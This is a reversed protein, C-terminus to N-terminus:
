RMADCVVFTLVHLARLPARLCDLLIDAHERFYIRQCCAHRSFDACDPFSRRCRSCFSDRLAQLVRSEGLLNVAFCPLRRCDFAPSVTTPHRVSTVLSGALFTRHCPVLAMPRRLLANSVTAVIYQIYQIGAMDYPLAALVLWAPAETPGSALMGAGALRTISVIKRNFAPSHALPSRAM